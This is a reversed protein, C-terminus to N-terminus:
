PRDYSLLARAARAQKSQSPRGIICQKLLYVHLGTEWAPDGDMRIHLEMRNKVDYCADLVTGMGAPTEVRRGIVDIRM